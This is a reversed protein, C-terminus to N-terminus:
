APNWEPAKVLSLFATRPLEISPADHMPQSGLIAVIVPSGPTDVVWMPMMVAGRPLNIRHTPELHPAVAEGEVHALAFSFGRNKLTNGLHPVSM